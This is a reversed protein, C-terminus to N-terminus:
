QRRLAGEVLEVARLAASLRTGEARLDALAAAIVPLPVLEHLESRTTRYGERAGEVAGTLIQRALFALVVPHQQLVSYQSLEPMLGLLWATATAHLDASGAPQGAAM